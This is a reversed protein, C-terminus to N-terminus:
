PEFAACNRNVDWGDHSYQRAFELGIGRNAGTILLTPMAPRFAAHRAFPEPKARFPSAAPEVGPRPNRREEGVMSGPAGNRRTSCRSRGITIIACHGPGPPVTLLTFAEGVNPDDRVLGAIAVEGRGARVALLGQAEAQPRSAGYNM